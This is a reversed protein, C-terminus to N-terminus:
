GQPMRGPLAPVWALCISVAVLLLFILSSLDAEAEKLKLPVYM